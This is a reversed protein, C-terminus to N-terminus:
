ASIHSHVAGPGGCDDASTAIEEWAAQTGDVRLRWVDGLVRGDSGVGGRLVDENQGSNYSGVPCIAHRDRVPPTASTTMQTWTATRIDHRAAVSSQAAHFPLRGDCLLPGRPPCPVFTVHVRACPGANNEAATASRWHAKRLTM